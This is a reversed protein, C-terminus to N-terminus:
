YGVKTEDYKQKAKRFIRRREKAHKASYGVNSHFDWIDVYEKLKSKRLGRGISQLIKVSQQGLEIMVVNMLSPIDIGVSAIQSTCIMCGQDLTDFREFEAERVKADVDGDMYIAGPIMKELIRGPEKFSVLVLTTGDESIERIMDSIFQVRDPQQFFWLVEDIWPVKEDDGYGDQFAHWNRNNDDIEIQHIISEALVGKEQLKWAPLDFIIPGLVAKIQKQFLTNEPLTGTCGFRFPVNAAPGSLIEELVKGKSNHAEDCIVCLVGEFLEEFHDLSQWTALTVDQRDHEEGYWIGANIGAQRFTSRTQLALSITPVIVIVKGFQSYIKAITAACISKGAGTALQLIGSGASLAANVAEIQYDRLVIPSNDKKWFFGEHFDEDVFAIQSSVHSWDMRKDELEVQYGRRELFPMVEPLLGLKTRGTPTMLSITGKWWGQKFKAMHQYGPVFYTLEDRITKLTDPDVGRLAVNVEDQIIIKAHAPM